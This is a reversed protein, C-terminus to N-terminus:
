RRTPSRLDEGGEGRCRHPSASALSHRYYARAPSAAAVANADHGRVCGREDVDVPRGGVRLLGDDVM